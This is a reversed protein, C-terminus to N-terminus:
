NVQYVNTNNVYVHGIEFLSKQVLVKPGMGQGKIILPLQQERGAVDCFATISYLQEHQPLFTVTNEVQSNPWVEGSLPFITFIDSEDIPRADEELTKFSKWIYQVKVNSKNHLLIKSQTELTAYTPRLELETVSFHVPVDM